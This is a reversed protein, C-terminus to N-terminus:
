ADENGNSYCADSQVDHNVEGFITYLSRHYETMGGGMIGGHSEKVDWSTYMTHLLTCGHVLFLAMAGRQISHWISVSISICILSM